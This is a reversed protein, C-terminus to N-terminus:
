YSYSVTDANEGAPFALKRMRRDICAAVRNNAPSVDVTM